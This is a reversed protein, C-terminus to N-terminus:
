IGVSPVSCDGRIERGEERVNLGIQVIRGEGRGSEVGGVEVELGWSGDEEGRTFSIDIPFEVPLVRVIPDWIPISPTCSLSVDNSDVLTGDDSRSYDIHKVKTLLISSSGPLFSVLSHLSKHM